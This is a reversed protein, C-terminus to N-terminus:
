WGSFNGFKATPQKYNTTTHISNADNREGDGINAITAAVATAQKKPNIQLNSLQQQKQPSPLYQGVQPPAVLSQEVLPITTKMLAISTGHSRFLM